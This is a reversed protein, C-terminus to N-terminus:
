PCKRFIGTLSRKAPDVKKTELIDNSTDFAWNQISVYTIQRSYQERKRESSMRETGRTTDRVVDVKGAASVDVKYDFDQVLGVSIGLMEAILYNSKFGDVAAADQTTVIFSGKGALSNVIASLFGITTKGEGTALEAINWGYNMVVAAMIQEDFLRFNGQSNSWGKTAAIM